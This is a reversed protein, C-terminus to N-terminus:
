IGNEDYIKIAQKLDTIKKESVDYFTGTQKLEENTVSFPLMKFLEELFELWGQCTAKHFSSLALYHLSAVELNEKKVRQYNDVNEKAIQTEKNM